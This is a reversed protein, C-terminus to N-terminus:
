ASSRIRVAEGYIEEYFKELQHDDFEDWGRCQHYHEDGAQTDCTIKHGTCEDRVLHWRNALEELEERTIAPRSRVIQPFRQKLEGFKWQAFGHCFLGREAAVQCISHEDDQWELLARRLDDIAEARTCTKM